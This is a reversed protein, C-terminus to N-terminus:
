IKYELPQLNTRRVMKWCYWKRHIKTCHWVFIWLSLSFLFTSTNENQYKSKTQNQTPNQNGLSLCGSLCTCFQSFPPFHFIPTPTQCDAVVHRGLPPYASRCNRFEFRISNNIPHPHSCLHMAHTGSGMMMWNKEKSRQGKLCAYKKRGCEYFERKAGNLHLHSGLNFYTM